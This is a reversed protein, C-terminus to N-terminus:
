TSEVTSRATAEDLLLFDARGEPVRVRSPSVSGSALGFIKFGRDGVMTELGKPALDRRFRLRARRDGRALLRTTPRMPTPGGYRINERISRHFLSIDQRCCRFDGDRLSQQTVRAIDQGDITITGGQEVDYFRQLCLLCVPNEAVRSVVLSGSSGSAGAPHSPKFKDFVALHRGPYIDSVPSGIRGVVLHQARRDRRAAIEDLGRGVPSPVMTPSRPTLNRTALPLTDGDRTREQLVRRDQQQIFGGGREVTSDSSAIRSASPRKIRPRVTMAM